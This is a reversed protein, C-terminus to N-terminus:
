ESRIAAIPDIARARPAGAAMSRVPQGVVTFGPSGTRVRVAFRCDNMGPHAQYEVTM